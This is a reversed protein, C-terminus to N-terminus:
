RGINPIKLIDDAKLEFPDSIGNALMILPWLESNGWVADAILDPRAAWGSPVKVYTNSPNTALRIFALDFETNGVIRTITQDKYVTRFGFTKYLM